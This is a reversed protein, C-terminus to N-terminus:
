KLGFTWSLGSSTGYDSGPINPPPQNDWNGYFSVNWKLNSFFKFYYSENTNFRIRGPESLAPLLAASAVFNTKKFQFFRVDAYILGALLSSNNSEPISSEYNTNQWALGGLLSFTARNSNILYRGVGGGVTSQLRIQQESSNLFGGLGSYFWNEKRMLHQFDFDVANRTSPSSGTSSSLSSNYSASANWRERVYATSSSLNYQTSDNGKSYIVGLSVDGSFREWFKDSTAVMRVIQARNITEVAHMPEEVVEIKVPQDAVKEAARLTGTYVEGGATKVLFLQTSVVQAVKSWDVSATGDIYDFSVFLVGGDLGKIECTMRDGNKMVLVDTKDRALLPAALTLFLASTLMRARHRM